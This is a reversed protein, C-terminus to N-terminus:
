VGRGCGGGGLLFHSEEGGLPHVRAWKYSIGMFEAGWNKEGQPHVQVGGRAVGIVGTIIKGEKTQVM